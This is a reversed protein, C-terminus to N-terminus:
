CGPLEGDVRTAEGGVDTENLVTEEEESFCTEGLDGNLEEGEKLGFSDGHGLVM